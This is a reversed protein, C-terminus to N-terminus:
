ELVRWHMVPSFPSKGPKVGQPDFPTHKRVFPQAALSQAAAADFESPVTM